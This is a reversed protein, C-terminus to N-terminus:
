QVVPPYLDPNYTYFDQTGNFDIFRNTFDRAQSDTFFATESGLGLRTPTTDFHHWGLNDPNVLSWRHRTPTGPIRDVPRNEIGARTLMVEGIAYFVYCNGRRERLARYADELVTEPGGIVSAYSINARIWAHIARVRELQSMESNVIDGLIIDVQEFVYNVDVNMIHVEEIIETTNGTLDTAWFKIAYVGVQNQNVESSDVHLELPRGFDDRAVVDQRYIIPNGVTSMITGTGEITPKERNIRIILNAKFTASKEHEDTIIIDVVQNTHALVDPERVFEVSIIESESHINEIFDMPIVSDGINITVDVIDAGPPPTGIMCRVWVGLLAIGMAGILVKTM